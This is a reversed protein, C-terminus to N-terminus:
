APAGAQAPKVRFEPRRMAPAATQLLLHEIERGVEQPARDGNLRHYRRGRYHAIVPGTLEQYAKQRDRVVTGNDDARCALATGDGDCVGDVRPPHSLLNYIKGCQPCQRRASIRSVLVSVPVDLHIVMPEPLHRQRLLADLFAAQAPTRPFGDLLFGHSCDPQLLRAAVMQNVLEDSVLGGQELVASAQRGLPTGAKLEARLLDGTSIAPIRFRSAIFSAQTGKGCGPAGFMLVIM